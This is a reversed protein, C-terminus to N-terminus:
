CIISFPPFNSTTEIRASVPLSNATPRSRSDRGSTGNSWCKLCGTAAGNSGFESDLLELEEDIAADDPLGNIVENREKWDRPVNSHFLVAAARRLFDAFPQLDLQELAELTEAYHNGQSNYFFSAHGGNDLGGGYSWALFFVRDRPSLGELGKESYQDILSDAIPQLKKLNSM